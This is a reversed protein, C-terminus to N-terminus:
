DELQSLLDDIDSGGIDDDEKTVAAKSDDSSDDDSSDGGFDIPTEDELDSSSKAVQSVVDEDDDDSSVKATEKSSAKESTKKAESRNQVPKSSKKSEQVAPKETTKSSAKTTEPPTANEDADFGGGSDGESPDGGIMLAAIRAIKAPEPIEIKDFLNIRAKLLAELGKENIAKDKTIMPVPVGNNHIFGSSKYGNSKGDKLVALEFLFAARENFFVGHAQPDEDDGKDDRMLAATWKDICTKPANYYKVKGRLEEPNMKSNTFFINVMYFTTPMWQTRIMKKREDGLNKEKCEKYLDFGYTCIECETGDWVRPCPHPKNNVWHQGHPLFFNEMTKTVPGSNLVDGAVLPPLVFFRFKIAETTSEAKPPKFEDPDSFKGSVAKQVNKRISEIDYPM